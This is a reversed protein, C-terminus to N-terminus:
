WFSGDGIATGGWSERARGVIKSIQGVVRDADGRGLEASGTVGPRVQVDKGVSAVVPGHGHGRPSSRRQRDMRVASADM